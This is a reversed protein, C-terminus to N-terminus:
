VYNIKSFLHQARKWFRFSPSRQPEVPPLEALHITDPFNEAIDWIAGLTAGLTWSIINKYTGTGWIFTSIYDWDTHNQQEPQAGTMFAPLGLRDEPFSILQRCYEILDLAIERYLEKGSVQWLKLYHYAIPLGYFDLHHHAVSVSTGGRTRFGRLGLPSADPMVADYTFIWTNIFGAASEATEILRSDPATENMALLPMLLALGAEKDTCNADLTDGRYDDQRIVSDVYYDLGRQAAALYVRNGGLRFLEILPLVIHAGNTGEGSDLTGDPHWWTGFSGSPLQNGTFFDCIGEATERWLSNRGKEGALIYLRLLNYALEGMLRTNCGATRPFNYGFWRKRALHYDGRCLGNPYSATCLFDATRVAANRLREDGTKLYARYCCLALEASRGIFGPSITNALPILRGTISTLFGACDKREIYHASVGFSTKAAVIEEWTKGSKVAIRDASFIKWAAAFCARWCADRGDAKVLYFKRSYEFGRRVELKRNRSGQLRAPYFKSRYAYPKEVLPILIELSNEGPRISSIFDSSAAPETFLAVARGNKSLVCCSPVACRDERFSFGGSLSGSPFNGKGRSNGDYMVSPVMWISYPEDLDVRFLLRAYGRREIRWTREIELLGPAAEEIDDSISAGDLLATARSGDLEIEQPRLRKRGVKCDYDLSFTAGDKFSIVVSDETAAISNGNM